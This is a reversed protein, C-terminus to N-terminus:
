KTPAKQQTTNLMEEFGSIQIEIKKREQHLKGIRDRILEEQTKAFIAESREERHSVLEYSKGIEMDKFAPLAFTEPTDTTLKYAYGNYPLLHLFVIETPAGKIWGWVHEGESVAHRDIM